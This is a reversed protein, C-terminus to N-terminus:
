EAESVLGSRLILDALEGFAFSSCLQEGLVASTRYDHYRIRAQEDTNDFVHNRSVTPADQEGQSTNLNMKM